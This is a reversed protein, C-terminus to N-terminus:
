KIGYSLWKRCASFHKIGYIIFKDKQKIRDMDKKATFTADGEFSIRGIDFIKEIFSQKFKVNRANSVSYSVKLWYFRGKTMVFPSKIPKMRIYEDFCIKQDELVLHKPSHFFMDLIMITELTLVCASIVFVSDNNLFIIWLVLLLNLIILNIYMDPNFVINFVRNLKYTAGNKNM